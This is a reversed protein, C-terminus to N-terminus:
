SKFTLYAVKNFSVQNYHNLPLQKVETGIKGNEHCICICVISFLAFWYFLRLTKNLLLWGFSGFKEYM